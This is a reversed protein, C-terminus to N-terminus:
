QAFAGGHTSSRVLTSYIKSETQALAKQVFSMTPVDGVTFNNTVYTVNNAGGKTHDIVTENPHLMAMFGGKGDMGGARAGSGTYGGGDFSFLNGLLGTFFGGLPETISKRVTIRLIDDGLGKLVDSLKGGGVIANEFASSFTLGLDDALTKTKEIAKGTDGVLNLLAQRYQDIGGELEGSNFADKLIDINERLRAGRVEDTEALISDLQRRRELVRDGAAKQAAQEGAVLGADLEAGEKIAKTIQDLLDKEAARQRIRDILSQSLGNAGAESIRREAIQTNTLEQEKEIAQDLSSLYRDLDTTIPTIYKQVESEESDVQGGKTGLTGAVSPRDKLFRRSVADGYDGVIADIKSKQRIRSIELLKDIEFLEKQLSETVTDRGKFGTAKRLSDQKAIRQEIATRESILKNIDEGANGSLRQLGVVGKAADKIIDFLLGTEKLKTFVELARNLPPLMENVLARGADGANKQLNSLQKNFKEAAEAQEATVTAVLRGQTALDNLFPAVDRLSKGFLEQVLRAKNADDAFGTLAVATKRLAEAPDIAKLENISLGLARFAAEQNSNPKADKLAANFKILSAGVVDFSTGTRAGIDELASLNEVSSGTADKLDNLADIGNTIGKVWAFAAGASLSVGLSTLLPSLKAAALGVGGLDKRVNALVRSANDQASIIIKTESM